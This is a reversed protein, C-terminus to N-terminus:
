DVDSLKEFDSVDTDAQEMKQQTQVGKQIVQKLIAKQQDTLSLFKCGYTEPSAYVIEAQLGQLVTKDESILDFTIKSGIEYEADLYFTLLSLGILNLDNVECKGEQAINVFIEGVPPRESSRRDAPSTVFQQYCIPCCTMKEAMDQPMDKSFGCWKCTVLM